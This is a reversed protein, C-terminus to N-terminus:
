NRMVIGLIQESFVTFLLVYCILAITIIKKRCESYYSIHRSRRRPYIKNNMVWLYLYYVLIAILTGALSGAVVDSIFHVGLYLRSYVMILAWVFITFGYPKYRFLLSTFTAFGFSFTSHGSIFGYQSGGTYEYLIKVHDMFDPHYTPRFRAFYPKLFVESVILGMVAILMLSVVIPLWVKVPKNYVLAFIFFLILPIWIWFGSYLWIVSDLLPTHHGNIFLFFDRELSLIEELM